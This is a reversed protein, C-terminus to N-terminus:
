TLRGVRSIGITDNGQAGRIIVQIRGEVGM